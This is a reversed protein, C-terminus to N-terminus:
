RGDVTLMSGGRGGGTRWWRKEKQCWKGELKSKRLQQKQQKQTTAKEVRSDETVVQSLEVGVGEGVGM